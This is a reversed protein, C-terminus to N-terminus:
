IAFGRKRLHEVSLQSADVLQWIHTVTGAGDATLELRLKNALHVMDSLRRTITLDIHFYGAQWVAPAFQAANLTKAGATALNYIEQDGAGTPLILRAATINNASMKCHIKELFVREQVAPYLLVNYVGAGAIAESWKQTRRHAGLPMARPDIFGYLELNAGAAAADATVELTFTKMGATGYLLFDEAFLSAQKPDAFWITRYGAEDVWDNYLNLEKLQVGTLDYKEIGNVKLVWRTFAADIQAQTPVPNATTACKVLLAKFAAGIPIQAIATNGAGQNNFGQLKIATYGIAGVGALADFASLPLLDADVGHSVFSVALLIGAARILSAKHMTVSM